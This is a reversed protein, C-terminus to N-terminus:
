LWLFIAHWIYCLWVHRVACCVCVCRWSSHSESGTGSRKPLRAFLTSTLTWHGQSSPHLRLCSSDPHCFDPACKCVAQVSVTPFPSMHPGAIKCILKTVNAPTQVHKCEETTQRGKKLGLGETAAQWWSIPLAGTEWDKNLM